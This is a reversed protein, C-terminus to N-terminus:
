PQVGGRRVAGTLDDFNNRVGPMLLFRAMTGLYAPSRQSLFAASEPSLQYSTGTKTLLGLTTLFDCLVRIGRESANCRAAIAATTQPGEDIATFLEVELATNLAASQQYAFLTDFVVAPSPMAHTAMLNSRQILIAPEPKVTHPLRCRNGRPKAM